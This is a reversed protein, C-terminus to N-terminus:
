QVILLTIFNGGDPLDDVGTGGGSASSSSRHHAAYTSHATHPREKKEEKGLFTQSREVKAGKGKARHKASKATTAIDDTTLPPKFHVITNARSRAKPSSKDVYSSNKAVNATPIAVVSTGHRTVQQLQALDQLSPSYSLMNKALELAEGCLSLYKERYFLVNYHCYVDCQIIVLKKNIGKKKERKKVSEHKVQLLLM